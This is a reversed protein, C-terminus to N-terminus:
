EGPGYFDNYNNLHWKWTLIIETQIFNTMELCALHTKADCSNFHVFVVRGRRGVLINSYDPLFINCLLSM